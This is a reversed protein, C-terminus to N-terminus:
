RVANHITLTFYMIVAREFSNKTAIRSKRKTYAMSNETLLEAAIEKIRLLEPQKTNPKAAISYTLFSIDRLDKTKSVQFYTTILLTILEKVLLVDEPQGLISEIISTIEKTTINEDSCQKCLAYNVGNTSIYNMTKEVQNAIRLSDSDAIHYDDEEFSDSAYAIYLDDKDNYVKYYETAINKMFSGIRSYLQQIMYVVDEDSFSKFKSKYTSHWTMAIKRIAGIVSGESVLDFKTTLVNNVVYEMVHRAPVVTNWSRYHLSPYFKGSFSLHIVALEVERTMNKLSFFRIINMMLVTFEDKAALPSFNPENGYYTHQIIEKVQDGSIGVAQFLNERDEDGFFIRACPLTDYLNAYRDEIFRSICDNYKKKTASSGMAKEVMPYLEKFYANTNADFKKSAEELYELESIRAAEVFTCISM